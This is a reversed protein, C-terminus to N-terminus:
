LRAGLPEPVMLAIAEDLVGLYWDPNALFAEMHGIGTLYHAGILSSGAANAVLKGIRVPIQRDAEGHIVVTKVPHSRLVEAPQAALRMGWMLRAALFVGYMFVLTTPRVLRAPIFPLGQRAVEVIEDTNFGGLASDAILGAYRRRSLAFMATAGGMSWGLVVVNQAAIGKEHLWDLAGILDRSEWWGYSPRSRDSGGTGRPDYMLVSHGRAILHGAIELTLRPGDSTTNMTNDNLRNNGGGPIMVVATPGGAFYWGCIRLGDEAPFEIQEYQHLGVDDPSARLPWTWKPAFPPTFMRALVACIVAYIAAILVLVLFALPIL